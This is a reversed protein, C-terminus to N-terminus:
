EQWIEWKENQKKKERKHMGTGPIRWREKKKSSTEKKFQKEDKEEWTEKKKEALIYKLVKFTGFIWGRRKTSVAWVPTWEIVSSFPIIERGEKNKKRKRMTLRRTDMIWKTAGREKIHDARVKNEEYQWIREIKM